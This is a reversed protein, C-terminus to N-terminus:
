IINYLIYTGRSGSEKSTKTSEFPVINASRRVFISSASANPFWTRCLLLAAFIPFLWATAAKSFFGWSKKRLLHERDRICFLSNIVQICQLSPSGSAIQMCFWLVQSAIQMFRHISHGTFTTSRWFRIENPNRHIENWRLYFAWLWSKARVEFWKLSRDFSERFEVTQIQKFWQIWTNWFVLIIIKVCKSSIYIYITANKQMNNRTRLIKSCVQM